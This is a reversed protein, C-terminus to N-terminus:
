GLGTILTRGSGTSRPTVTWITWVGYATSFWPNDLGGALLGTVMVRSDLGDVALRPTALTTIPPVGAAWLRGGRSVYELALGVGSADATTHTIRTPTPDFIGDVAVGTWAGPFGVATVPETVLNRVAMAAASDLRSGLNWLLHNDLQPAPRISRYRGDALEGASMPLKVPSGADPGAAWVANTAFIRRGPRM